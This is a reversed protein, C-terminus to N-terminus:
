GQGCIHWPGMNKAPVPAYKFPLTSCHLYRTKLSFFRKSLMFVSLTILSPMVTHLASHVNKITISLMMTSLTMINLTTKNRM